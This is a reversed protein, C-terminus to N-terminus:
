SIRNITKLRYLSFHKTKVELSYKDLWGPDSKLRQALADGEQMCLWGVISEPKRVAKRWMIGLGENYVFERVPLGSDYILPALRGMDILIRGGDYFSRIYQIVEHREQEIFNHEFTEAM